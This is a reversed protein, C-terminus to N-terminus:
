DIVALADVEVMWEPRVLSSVEVLTAAPYPAPIYESRVEVFAAYDSMDTLFTTMKVIDGMGGGAGAVIAQLNRFVQRAQARFDGEGVLQGDGDLAVQGAIYLIRGGEVEVGQAYEAVPEPVSDPQIQRRKM